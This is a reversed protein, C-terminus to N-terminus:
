RSGKDALIPDSSTQSRGRKLLRAAHRPSIHDVIGRKIVEDAIEKATWHSIPRGSDEPDECAMAEIQCRQDATIEAPAGPRPLDELREEVSLDDLAIPHLSLWRNRWCRATEVHIGLERAIQRNNKGDAAALVIRGRLAIQQRTSHRRILKELADREADTLKVEPPKLGPMTNVRAKASNALKVWSV